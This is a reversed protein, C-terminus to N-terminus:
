YAAAHRPKFPAQLSQRDIQKCVYVTRVKDWLWQMGSVTRPVKYVHFERTGRRELWRYLLSSGVNTIILM